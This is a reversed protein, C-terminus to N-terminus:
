DKPKPPPAFRQLPKLAQEYLAAAPTLLAEIASIRREHLPKGFPASAAAAPAPNLKRLLRPAAAPDYGARAAIMLGLRDARLAQEGSFQAGMVDAAITAVPDSAAGPGKLVDMGQAMASRTVALHGMRERAQELLSQAVLHAVASALEDDDLQLENLLGYSVALKGGPLSWLDRSRSGILNIEWNWASARENCGGSAMLLRDLIHRLRVVQSHTTPALAKRERAREIVQAYQEAAKREVEEAAILKVFSSPPRCEDSLGAAAVAGAAGFM